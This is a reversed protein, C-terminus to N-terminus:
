PGTHRRRDDKWLRATPNAYQELPDHTYMPGIQTFVGLGVDHDDYIVTDLDILERQSTLVQNVSSGMLEQHEGMHRLTNQLTTSYLRLNDKGYPTDMFLASNILREM